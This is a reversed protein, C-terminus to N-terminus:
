FHIICNPLLNKIRQKESESFRNRELHLEQLNMLHKIEDPLSTLQNNGLELYLLKTLKGIEKPLDEILNNNMILIRLNVLNGIKPTIDKLKNSSLSIEDLTKLETLIIPFTTFSNGLLNFSQINSLTNLAKPLENLDQRAIDISLVEDFESIAQDIDKYEFLARNKKIYDWYSISQHKSLKFSYAKGGDKSTWTGSAESKDSLTKGIFYGTISDTKDREVLQFTNDKNLHGVLKLSGDKANYYYSGVLTSDLLVLFNLKIEFKQGKDSEIFGDYVYTPCFSNDQAYVNM